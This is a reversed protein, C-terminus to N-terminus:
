PGNIGPLRRSRNALIQGRVGPVAGASRQHAGIREMGRRREHGQGVHGGAMRPGGGWPRPRIAVPVGDRLPAANGSVRLLDLCPLAACLTVSLLFWADRDLVPYAARGLRVCTGYPAARPCGDRQWSGRGRRARRHADASDHLAAAVTAAPQHHM